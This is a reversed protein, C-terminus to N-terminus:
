VRARRLPAACDWYSATAKSIRTKFYKRITARSSFMVRADCSSIREDSSCYAYESASLAMTPQSIPTSANAATPADDNRLQSGVLM